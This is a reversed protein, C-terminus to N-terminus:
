SDRTVERMKSDSLSDGKVTSSSPVSEYVYKGSSSVANEYLLIQVFDQINEGIGGSRYVTLIDELPLSSRQSSTESVVPSDRFYGTYRAGAHVNVETADNARDSIGSHVM